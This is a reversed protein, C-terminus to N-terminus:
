ENQWDVAEGPYYTPEKQLYSNVEAEIHERVEEPIAGIVNGLWDEHMDDELSELADELDFMAYQEAAVAVKIDEKDLYYYSELFERKDMVCGDRGKPTIVLLDDNKLESLKKM